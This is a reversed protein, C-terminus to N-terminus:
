QCIYTRYVVCYSDCSEKQHCCIKSANEPSIRKIKGHFDCDFVEAGEDIEDFVETLEDTEEL